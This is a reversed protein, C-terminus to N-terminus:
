GGGGCCVFFYGVSRGLCAGPIPGYARAPDTHTPILRVHQYPPDDRQLSSNWQRDHSPEPEWPIPVHHATETHATHTHIGMYAYPHTHVIYLGDLSSAHICTHVRIRQSSQTHMSRSWM